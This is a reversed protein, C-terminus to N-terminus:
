LNGSSRIAEVVRSDSRLDQIFLINEIVIQMDSNPGHVESGQKVLKLDSLQPTPEESDSSTDAIAQADASNGQFYYVEELKLFEKSKGEFRGFYVQGNTLFVAKIGSKEPTSFYVKSSLYFLGALAILLIVALAIYKPTNNKM